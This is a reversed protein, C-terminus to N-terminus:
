NLFYSIFMLSNGLIRAATALDEENEYAEILKLYQLESYVKRTHKVPVSKPEHTFNSGVSAKNYEEFQDWQPEPIKNNRSLSPALQM